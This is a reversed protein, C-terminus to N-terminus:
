RFVDARNVRTRFTVGVIDCAMRIQDAMDRRAKVKVVGRNASVEADEIDPVGRLTRKLLIAKSSDLKDVLYYFTRAWLMSHYYLM